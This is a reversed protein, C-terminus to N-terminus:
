GVARFVMVHRRGDKKSLLKEQIQVGEKGGRDSSIFRHIEPQMNWQVGPDQSTLHPPNTKQSGTNVPAGFFNPSPLNSILLDDKLTEPHAPPPHFDISSYLISPWTPDWAPTNPFPSNPRSTTYTIPTSPPDASGARQSTALDKYELTKFPESPDESRCSADSASKDIQPKTDPNDSRMELSPSSTNLIPSKEPLSVLSQRLLRQRRLSQLALAALISSCILLLISFPRAKIIDAAYRIVRQYDAQPVHQINSRPPMMASPNNSSNDPSRRLDAYKPLKYTRVTYSV